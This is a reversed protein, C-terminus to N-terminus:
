ANTPSLEIILESIHNKHICVTVKFRKKDMPLGRNEGSLQGPRRPKEFLKELIKEVFRKM